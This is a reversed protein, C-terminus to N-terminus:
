TSAVEDAAPRPFFSGPLRGKGISLAPSEVLHWSAAALPVTILISMAALPVPGWDAGGMAALGQTIPFAFLYTGYSLDARWRLRLRLGVAIAVFAFAAHVVISGGLSGACLFALVVSAIGLPWTLPVRDRWVAIGAGVLFATTPGFVITLALSLDPAMAALLIAILGVVPLVRPLLRPPVAAVLAYCCLEPWLTWLSANVLPIPRAELGVSTIGGVGPAPFWAAGLYAHGVVMSTAVVVVAYAPVIRAARRLVFTSAGQHRRSSVLLFGSLAFFAAVAIVGGGGLRGDTVADVPDRGFGGIPWAHVILIYLALLLRLATIGNDRPDQAARPEHAVFRGQTRNTTM